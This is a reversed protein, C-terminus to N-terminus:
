RDFVMDPGFGPHRRCHDRWLSLYSQAVAGAPDLGLRRAAAELSATPGELEVFDGMPTHDLEVRVEDLRWSEREKEYRIGPAYDLAHLLEAMRESSSVELEIERRQKVAGEYRAPGKFTLVHRPGVRRLRLVQGSTALRGSATDFLINVEHEAASLRDAGATALRRRIEDLDDVPIKLECEIM